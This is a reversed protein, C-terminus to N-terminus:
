NLLKLFEGEDITKVGFKKAEDFKSGPEEGVVVYSTNKSVSSSVSGGRSRIIEKAEDRSLKSLTGTLVFTKNLFLESKPKSENKIINVQELLDDVIKVNHADSFWEVISKSVIPGIGEISEFSSIKSNRFREFTKFHKALDIATEEGVNPISLSVIFRDLTIDKSNQISALLNDVSKEGFRPLLLLDGKELTFIDAYTTILGQDLLVDLNKPGLHEIDFAHKSTFYYFKRRDKAPCKKNTCYYAASSQIGKSGLAKKELHFNCEPCNLSMKFKKEKGIRMETLVSVIDPIVDGAKQLIVTDGIRVDLRNIEDENHLTARSVTSGAVLVPDLHAVPTVVGTRGVQFVIDLVKTTVQEAPFKFAIGFRPAKGTYGLVEQYEKENVKVVVGDILYNEKEKKHQWKKWFSVIGEVTGVHEYKDSVRFGLKHLFVLEDEQTKIEDNQMQSIDYIFTSLGRKAVIGPDLQRVTGATINRPNMFLDEGKNKQEKNLLDFQTKPMYVEGEVIINIKEKLSLPISEIRKMNETVDEGVKGDGRTAGSKLIGNEYELVVKLGDIKLECIYTPELNKGTENKLFRKVRVDFDFIDKESFADNFSWQSVKHKIKKFGPLVGGAVRQSPSDPTVLDPFKEELDVLERKLSDLAEESIDLKNLVHYNYRYHNISERLKEIRERAMKKDLAM